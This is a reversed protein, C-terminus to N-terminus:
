SHNITDDTWNICDDEIIIGGLDVFTVNQNIFINKGFKIHKGFDTYFPLSIRVTDDIVVETIKSLLNNVEKSDRYQSNLEMVLQENDKKKLHIEEYEKSNRLIEKGKIKELLSKEM